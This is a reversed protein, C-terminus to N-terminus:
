QVAGIILYGVWGSGCNEEDEGNWCEEKNNCPTSWILVRATQSDDNHHKSQCRFTDKDSMFGKDLYDQRCDVEDEGEDCQPHQDCKLSPHLCYMQKINNITKMCKVQDKDCPGNGAPSINDSNDKCKPKGISPRICQHNQRGSCRIWDKDFCPQSAWFKTNNCLEPDATTRGGLEECVRDFLCWGQQPFCNKGFSSVAGSCTLGNGGNTTCSKINTTLETEMKNELKLSQKFPTQDSRDLCQYHGVKIKETEVCQGPLAMSCRAAGLNRCVEKKREEARCWILDSDDECLARGQCVEHEPVCINSDSCAGVHARFSRQDRTTQNAPYANCSGNCAVTLPLVMGVCTADTKTSRYQDLRVSIKGDSGRKYDCPQSNCCWKGSGRNIEEGGCTCTGGICTDGCRFAYLGAQHLGERPCGDDGSALHAALLLGALLHVVAM